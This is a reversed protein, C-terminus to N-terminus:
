FKWTEVTKEKLKERDVPSIMGSRDPISVKGDKVQIEPDVIDERFYRSSSAIDSAHDVSELSAAVIQTSAGVGSELVGGIWMSMGNERCVQDIRMSERLGGIRQPKLNVIDCADIRAAREVDEASHISEDLCIPTEIRKNLVSHNVIDGHSLPQEIMSLNFEDLRELREANELSYASNADAMIEMDPFHKRVKRVYEIDKGPKIKLKIRSYGQDLYGQVKEVIEKEDTVGLSVGCRASGQSGGIIDKLSREERSSKLNYLLQDGASKSHPHGRLYSLERHYEDITESEKLAPVVYRRLFEESNYVAEHNYVPDPLVSTEGYFWGGDVKGCLILLERSEISWNSTTFPNSLQLRIKRLELEEFEM